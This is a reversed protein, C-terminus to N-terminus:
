SSPSLDHFRMHAVMAFSPLIAGCVPCREGVELEDDEDEWYMDSLGSEGELGLSNAPQDVVLDSVESPPHEEVNVNLDQIDRAMPPSPSEKDPRDTVRWERLVKDQQRFMKSIDRGASAGPHHDTAIMEMNTACLNVLSLDWGRREPHLKAFLPMLTGKVLKAAVADPAPIADFVFSPM